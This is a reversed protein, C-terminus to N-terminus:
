VGRTSAPHQVTDWEIIQSEIWRRMRQFRHQRTESANHRAEYCFDDDNLFMIEAALAQAIGFAGAVSVQDEVDIGSMDLGRARGVSGIACVLGDRELDSEILKPEHLADMAALMERLFAQGRKGRISSTVAGRWCILRWQDDYDESYGSRSM